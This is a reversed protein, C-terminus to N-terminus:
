PISARVYAPTGITAGNRPRVRFWQFGTMTASGQTTFTGQTSNAPVVVANNTWAGAELQATTPNAVGSYTTSRQIQYDAEAIPIDLWGISVATPSASLVQLQAPACLLCGFAYYNWNNSTQQSHLANGGVTLSDDIARLRWWYATTSSLGTLNVTMDGSGSGTSAFPGNWNADNDLQALTPNPGGVYRAVRYGTEGPSEDRWALMMSTTTAGTSLVRFSGNAVHYPATRTTVIDGLPSVIEPVVNANVARLRFEWTQSPLLETKLWQTTGAPLNVGDGLVNEFNAQGPGRALLRYHSVGPVLGWSIAVETWNYAHFNPAAPTALAPCDCLDVDLAPGYGGSVDVSSVSEGTSGLDWHVRVRFRKRADAAGTTNMVSAHYAFADNFEQDQDAPVLVQPQNNVYYGSVWGGVEEWGGPAQANPQLDIVQAEYRLFGGAYPQEVQSGWSIVCRDPAGIARDLVTPLPPLPLPATSGQPDVLPNPPAWNALEAPSVSASVIVGAVRRVAVVRVLYDSDPLTANSPYLYSSQPAAVV